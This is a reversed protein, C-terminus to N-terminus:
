KVPSFTPSHWLHPDDQWFPIRSEHHDGLAHPVADRSIFRVEEPWRHTMVMLRVVRLMNRENILGRLLTM